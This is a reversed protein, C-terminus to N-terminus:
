RQSVVADRYTGFYVDYLYCGETGCQKPGYFKARYKVVNDFVLPNHAPLVEAKAEIRTIGLDKMTFLESSECVGDINEDQWVFLKSFIEDGADIYGKGTKDYQALATFGNDAKGRPTMTYDGFLERGDDIIGNGNLDIALFGTTPYLWGGREKRGDANFDFTVGSEQPRITQFDRSASLDLVLPTVYRERSIEDAHIITPTWFVALAAILALSVSPNIVM